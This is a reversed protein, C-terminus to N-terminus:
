RVIVMDLLALSCLDSYFIAFGLMRVSLLDRHLLLYYYITLGTFCYYFM